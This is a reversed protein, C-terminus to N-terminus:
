INTLINHMRTITESIREQRQRGTKSKLYQARARYLMWVRVQQSTSPFGMSEPPLHLRIAVFCFPFYWSKDKLRICLKTQIIKHTVKSSCNWQDTQKTEKSLAKVSNSRRIVRFFFIMVRFFEFQLMALKM